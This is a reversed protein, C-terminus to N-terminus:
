RRTSGCGARTRASRTTFQVRYGRNIQVDGKDNQWAVRFSFIRDPETLRELIRAKAYRPNEEIFPLLTSAVERVAQLFEPENPNRSEVGSMFQDIAATSM